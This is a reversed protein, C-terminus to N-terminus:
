ASAGKLFCSTGIRQHHFTYLKHKALLVLTRLLNNSLESVHAKLEAVREGLRVGQRSLFYSSCYLYSNSPGVM